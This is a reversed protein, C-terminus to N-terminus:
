WVDKAPDSITLDDPVQPIPVNTTPKPAGKTQSM